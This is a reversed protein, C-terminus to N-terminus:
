NRRRGRAAEDPDDGRDERRKKRGYKGELGWYGAWRRMTTRPLEPLEPAVEFDKKADNWWRIWRASTPGQDTGTLVMLSLRLDGMYRDVNKQSSSKMLSLLAEVSERTRIMGLGLLRAQVAPYSPTDFPNKALLDISSPSGHQGIAKLLEAAYAEDKKVERDTEFTRELLDLASEHPMWRLAQVAASRVETDKEKLARGVAKAVRPDPVERASALTRKKEDPDKSRLADELAEVTEEVRAPDPAEREEQASPPSLVLATTTLLLDLM